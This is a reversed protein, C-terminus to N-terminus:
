SFIMKKISSVDNRIQSDVRSIKGVKEVGHMVTTHDRGGFLDGIREYPADLETKILYMAVHRAMAVPAKRSKGKLDSSSFDYYKATKAIVSTPRIKRSRRESEVGFFEGVLKTDVRREEAGGLAVVRRLVGELERVNSDIKDAIMELALPDVDVGMEGVRQRLIGLRMEFDPPQMDVTLGGMFRSSLREEIRPIEEPPRDSTLIIQREAMYLDNFTHFFEEQTFEKGSIFQIDDVLLVDCSRYRKKFSSAKKSQLSSILENVFTEAPIYLVTFEPNKDLLAHGIAQMLHTKGLGVGGYIFLPNYKKGPNSIVGQAAAHAFNNSSGVVYTDFTLRPNLFGRGKKSPVVPPENRSSTFLPGSSENKARERVSNDVVISLEVKGSTVKQLVKEITGWYRQEIIQQHFGSPVALEIACGHSNKELSTLVLPKIWTSFNVSSLSLELEALASSWVDQPKM